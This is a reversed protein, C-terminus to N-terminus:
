LLIISGDLSFLKRPFSVYYRHNFMCAQMHESLMHYM